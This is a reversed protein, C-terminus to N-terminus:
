PKIGPWAPSSYSEFKNPSRKQKFSSIRLYHPTKPITKSLSSYSADPRGTDFFVCSMQHSKRWRKSRKLRLVSGLSATDAREAREEFGHQIEEGDKRCNAQLLFQLLGMTLLTQHDALIIRWRAAQHLARSSMNSIGHISEVSDDTLAEPGKKSAWFLWLWSGLLSSRPLNPAGTTCASSGRWQRSDNLNHMNGLHCLSASGSRQCLAAEWLAIHWTLFACHSLDKKALPAICFCLQHNKSLFLWLPKIDNIKISSHNATVFSEQIEHFRWTGSVSFSFRPVFTSGLFIRFWNSPDLPQIKRTQIHKEM